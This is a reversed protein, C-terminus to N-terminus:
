QHEGEPRPPAVGLATQMARIGENLGALYALDAYDRATRKAKATEDKLKALETRLKKVVTPESM